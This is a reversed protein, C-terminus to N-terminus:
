EIILVNLDNEPIFDKYEVSFQTANIKEIDPICVSIISDTKEKDLILKFNKIAGQWNNATTLVYQVSHALAENRGQKKLTQYKKYIAKKTGDDICFSAEENNANHYNSSMFWSGVVPQYEHSVNITKGAPFTQPWYLITQVEWKGTNDTVWGKGADYKNEALWKKALLTNKIAVPLNNLTKRYNKSFPSVPIHYKKLEPTIDQSKQTNEDKLFAQHSIQVPIGTGDVKVKFNVFNESHYNPIDVAAISELDYDSMLKPLPFAVWTKIDNASNNKFVYNVKIINRSIYLEEKEMSIDASKLLKLGGAALTASSDNASLATSVIYLLAALSYKYAKM